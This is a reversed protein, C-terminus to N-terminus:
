KDVAADRINQDDWGELARKMVDRDFPVIDAYRGERVKNVWEQDAMLSRGVAILDFEGNELRAEVERVSTEPDSVLPLDSYMTQMADVNLGVSGVAIVPMGSLQKTWGALGLDSGPWEPVDFRRTSVHLIDTGADRLRAVMDALEKPSDIVRANFDVEKWQSFRFGILFDEGVAARIARIISVHYAIREAASAGGYQDARRNTEPWLFQDLFYGHASHLEIGDAGADQATLAAEVYMDRLTDLETATAERGNPHGARILGSPSVTPYNPDLGGKGQKRIAGEHWLQVLMRGGEEKVGAICDRWEALQERRILLVGESHGMASPHNIAASEAIVLGIGGRACRRYYDNLRPSPAGDQAWGRQMPPLVFRNPLTVNKIQFPTFLKSTM